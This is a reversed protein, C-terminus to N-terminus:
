IESEESDMLGGALARHRPVKVTEEAQHQAVEWIAVVPFLKVLLTIVLAFGSLAAAMISWEVWTPAYSAPAHPMLPVRLGGVIIFYREVWM